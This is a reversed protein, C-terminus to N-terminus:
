GMGVREGLAIGRRRAARAYADLTRHCIQEWTFHERIVTAAAQGIRERRAPDNMLSVITEALSEPQDFDVLIVNRGNELLGPGYTDANAAAIVCKGAGMAELSAIGLSTNEKRDQYFLHAELEALKLLAPVRHHPQPGTFIVSQEVGLQRALRRPTDTGEQGVILLVAEPIQKLIHPLARVEDCRSRVEHVHGLSLIVRKGALNFEDRIAQVDHDTPEDTLEVGYPILEHPTNPFAQEVYMTINHDPCIFCESRDAVLCRLFVRDAPYLLLNYAPTTHRIMTHITTVLPLGLARRMCVSSFATDFMHNHQHLVAPQHRHLIDAIRRLNGPTFTWSLWPFNLAIPLKPVRIAPLRYIPVGDLTEEAPTDPDVHATIVFPRHGLKRLHRSLIRTHTSSGSVVPQFLNSFMAVSLSSPITTPPVSM